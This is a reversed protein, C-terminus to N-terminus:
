SETAYGGEKWIGKLNSPCAKCHTMMLVLDALNIAGTKEYIRTLQQGIYRPSRGMATGLLRYTVNGALVAKLLKVEGRLLPTYPDPRLGIHAHHRSVNHKSM